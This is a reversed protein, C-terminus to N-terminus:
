WLQIGPDIRLLTPIYITDYSFLDSELEIIWDCGFSMRPLRNPFIFSLVESKILFM